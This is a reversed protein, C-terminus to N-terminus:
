RPVPRLGDHGAIGAEDAAELVRVVCTVRSRIRRGGACLSIVGLIYDIRSLWCMDNRSDVKRTGGIQSQIHLIGSM